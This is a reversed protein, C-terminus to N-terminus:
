SDVSFKRAFHSIQVICSLDFPKVRVKKTQTIHSKKQNFARTMKQSIKERKLKQNKPSKFPANEFILIRALIFGIKHMSPEYSTYSLSYIGRSQHSLSAARVKGSDSTRSGYVQELRYRRKLQKGRWDNSLM